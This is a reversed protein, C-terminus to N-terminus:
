FTIPPPHMHPFPPPLPPPPGPFFVPAPLLAWFAPLIFPPRAPPPFHVGLVASLLILHLTGSDVGLVGPGTAEASEHPSHSAVSM